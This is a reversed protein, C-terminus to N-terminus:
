AASPDRLSYLLATVPRPLYGQQYEKDDDNDRLRYLYGLMLLVAARAANTVNTPVAPPSGVALSSIDQVKLYNLVASQAAAIMSPLETDEDNGDLRLHYKAQDLTVIDTM